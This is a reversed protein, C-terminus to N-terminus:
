MKLVYPLTKKAGWEIFFEKPTAAFGKRISFFVSPVSFNKVALAFEKQNEIDKVSAYQEALLSCLTNFAKSIEDYETKYEPFYELFESDENAMVIELFRQKRLEPVDTNLTSKLYHLAVYMKAKVKVRNFNADCVVYGEQVVGNLSSASKLVSDFNAFDFSKILEWEPLGVVAGAMHEQYTEVNRMGHFILKNTDHKVVARNENTMLEFMFCYQEFGVPLKYNLSDWVEWFLEKFTKIIHAESVNGCADPSGSSSVNWKGGYYYLTLLSGDVKEYIKATNWDIEAAHGEGYNFFKNYPYSVVKWNNTEDVIIGRCQRVLEDSMPSDIMNYKLLVLNPYELHRVAKCKTRELLAELSNNQLFETVTVM